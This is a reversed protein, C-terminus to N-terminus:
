ELMAPIEAAPRPRSFLYGQAEAYGEQFDNWTGGLLIQFQGETEM